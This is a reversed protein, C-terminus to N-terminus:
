GDPAQWELVTGGDPRADVGCQGGLKAARNALNRIGNGGDPNAPLGIGDDAVRLTVLGDRHEVDIEVSTAQAHRAVNSLAERV